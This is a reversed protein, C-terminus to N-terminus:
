MASLASAPTTATSASASTSAVSVAGGIEQPVMERVREWVARAFEPDEMIVRDNNRINTMMQAGSSTTVSAAEFGIAEGKAVLEQCEQPTFLCSVTFIDKDIVTVNAGKDM